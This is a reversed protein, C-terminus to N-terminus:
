QNLLSWDGINNTFTTAGQGTGTGPTPALTDFSGAASDGSGSLAFLPAAALTLLGAAPLHRM